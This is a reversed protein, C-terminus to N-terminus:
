QKSREAIARFSWNHPQNAKAYLETLWQEALDSLEQPLLETVHVSPLEKIGEQRPRAPMEVTAYNPTQWPKLKLTVTPGSM